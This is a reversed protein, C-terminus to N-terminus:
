RLAKLAAEAKELWYTMGMGRYMTTAITFEEDAQLPKSTGRYVKALGAHCHAVLPRMGLASGRTLAARYYHETGEALLEPRVRLTEGLIYCALAANAQQGSREAFELAM